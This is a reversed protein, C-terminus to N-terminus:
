PEGGSALTEKASIRAGRRTVEDCIEGWFRVDDRGPFRERLGAFHAFRGVIVLLSRARSLMVNVRNPSVLYGIDAEPQEDGRKTDRVMSVVVIDAERGQFSDVTHIQAKAWAPLGVKDLAERQKLYPTLLAFREEDDPSPAPRVRSLLRKVVDVEGDNRWAPRQDGANPYGETDLWVLARGKLIAPAHLGHARTSTSEDSKLWGDEVTERVGSTKNIRERYFARSVVAAIEPHMRFQLDLEDLPERLRPGNQRGENRKARGDFLSGFLRYVKRYAEAQEGHARLEEDDSGLCERLVKEVTMEDFAPLQLHDGILTWRRGKVLPLALETPWARAAEEVVVWDFTASPDGIGLNTDTSAGTTAFVLNAGRRLRDRLEPLVRPAQESWRTLVAALEPKLLTGDQLQKDHVAREVVRQIAVIQADAQREPLYRLMGSSLKDQAEAEKSAVRIAVPSVGQKRCEKLVREGLNDLAYHSQSTILARLGPEARLTAVLAASAVTTKGTGPPGHLAFFPSSRLMDLVIEPSRGKLGEAARPWRGRMGMISRPDHLQQLLPIMGRLQDTAEAQRRQQASEGHDEHPRVWGREPLTDRKDALKVEITNNDLTRNLFVTAGRSYEVRGQSDEPFVTLKGSDDDTTQFLRGMPARSLRFYLARLGDGYRHKRDREEDVTLTCIEGSRAVTVPFRRADLQAKRLEVLFTLAQDMKGLWEPRGSSRQDVSRMLPRWSAARARLQELDPSRNAWVPILAIGGPVKRRLPSEDLRWAHRHHCVYKILLLQEVQLPSGSRFAPGPPYYLDCFWFGQRGRLVFKAAFFARKEKDDRPTRFASFGEPSYLLEAGELERLLYLKLEEQGTPDNPDKEIWGWKLLTKHSEEPMFGVFFPRPDPEPSLAAALAGYSGSLRRLVEAVSPRAHAEEELMAGLVDKLEGPLAASTLGQVLTVRAARAAEPTPSCAEWLAEAERRLAAASVRPEVLWRWAMVGLAYVDERDSELYGEAASPGLLWLAREPPCYPLWRGLSERFIGRVKAQQSADAQLQRRLANSVMTSMEFRALRLSYPAREADPEGSHQIYEVTAPSLNRHTIGREHLLSLGHALLLLQRLAEVPDQAIYEMANPEALTYEAADTIVFAVDQAEDHGGSRVSPLAPHRRATLQMLARVERDWLEGGLSQLGHYLQVTVPQLESDLLRARVLLEPIVVEVQSRSPLQYPGHPADRECFLRDLLVETSPTARHIQRVDPAAARTLGLGARYLEPVDLRQDIRRTLLGRRLLREVVGAATECRPRRSTDAGDLLPMLRAQLADDAIPTTAGRLLGPVEGLWPDEEKLERVRDDSVVRQASVFCASPVCVGPQLLDRALEAASRFLRLLSRPSTEGVGDTIHDMVWVDSPSATVGEGLTPGALARVLESALGEARKPVIGFHTDRSLAGEGGCVRVLWRQLAESNSELNLLRKVLLAYLDAESWTLTSQRTAFFKAGDPFEMAESEFLDKRLFVKPRIRRWVRSQSQWLSFLGRIPGALSEWTPMLLDLDDYVLILSRGENHLREDLRALAEYMAASKTEMASLLRQPDNPALAESLAADLSPALEDRLARGMLGLWMLRHQPLDAGKLAAHLSDPDPQGTDGQRRAYGVRVVINGQLPLGLRLAPDALLRCLATKGAGRDGIVLYTDPSLATRVRGTLLFQKLSRTTDDRQEEVGREPCVAILAERLEGWLADPPTLDSM